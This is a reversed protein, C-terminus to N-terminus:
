FFPFFPDATTGISAEFPPGTLAYHPAGPFDVALSGTWSVTGDPAARYNGTGSFPAPPAIRASSLANSVKLVKPSSAVALALRFIAFKGHAQETSALLLTRRDKVAAFRASSVGSRWESLLYPREPGFFGNQSPHTALKVRQASRSSVCQPAVSTVQGKARRARVSIYGGEGRFKFEGVFTGRQNEFRGSRSCVRNRKAPIRHASERFRMSVKGFAGFSAAIRHRTVTGRAIYATLSKAHRGHVVYVVVNDGMGSVVVLYGDHSELMFAPHFRPEHGGQVTRERVLKRLQVPASMQKGAPSGAEAVGPAVLLALTLALPLCRLVLPRV